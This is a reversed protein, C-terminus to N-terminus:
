HSAWDFFFWVDGHKGKLGHQERYRKAATTGSCNIAGAPGWKHRIREDRDEILQHAYHRKQKGKHERKPIVEVSPKEAITGTYGGHGHMHTADELANRFADDATKGFALVEFTVTGM